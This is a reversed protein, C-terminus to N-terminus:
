KEDEWEGKTCLYAECLQAPTADFLFTMGVDSWHGYTKWSKCGMLKVLGTQFDCKQAETLGALVPALADRSNLYDPIDSNFVLDGDPKMVWTEWDRSIWGEKKALCDPHNHM